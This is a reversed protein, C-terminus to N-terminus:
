RMYATAETKDSYGGAYTVVCMQGYSSPQGIAVGAVQFDANFINKRHGRTPVGDDILMGIVAERADGSNYAINEGVSTQWNGYRSIRQEPLSGDTGKHGSNGSLGLDKVHDRAGACMGKAPSLPPLPRAAQLFKIAEDLVGAGEQLTIMRSGVKIQNGKLTQKLQEIQAAYQAPNARARNMEDLMARESQSLYDVQAPVAERRVTARMARGTLAVLRAPLHTRWAVLALLLVIPLALLYTIKRKTM